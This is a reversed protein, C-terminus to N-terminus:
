TAGARVSYSNSELDELLPAIRSLPTAERVKRLGRLMEVVVEQGLVDPACYYLLMRVWVSSAYKLRSLELDSLFQDVRTSKRLSRDADDFLYRIFLDPHQPDAM